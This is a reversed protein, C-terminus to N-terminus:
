YNKSFIYLFDDCYKSAFFLPAKGFFHNRSESSHFLLLTSFFFDIKVIKSLSFYLIFIFFCYFDIIDYKIIIRFFLIKYFHSFSNRYREILYKKVIKSTAQIQRLTKKDVSRQFRAETLFSLYQSKFFAKALHRHPREISRRPSFTNRRFRFPLFPLFPFILFNHFYVSYFRDQKLSQSFFDFFSWFYKKHSQLFNQSLKTCFKCLNIAKQSPAFVAGFDSHYIKNVSRSLHCFTFFFIPLTACFVITKRFCRIFVLLNCNCKKLNPHLYTLIVIKFFIPHRRSQSMPAFTPHHSHSFQKVKKINYSLIYEHNKPKKPYSHEFSGLPNGTQPIQKQLIQKPTTKQGTTAQKTFTIASRTRSGPQREAPSDYQL